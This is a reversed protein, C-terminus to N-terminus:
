EDVILDILPRGTASDTQALVDATIEVLYSDLEGSNWERFVAAAEGASLGTASRVDYAEAIFQMDAYEIGNHVMKVFHGAGDPGMWACCPEGDVRAAISELIPGLAAYSEPSGGPMISPGNLAGVEGGSIGTGVFHLGLDRLKAERRRTDTFQANGGDVVSDGQELHPVLEDIGADTPGGAKVMIIIRRPRELSALFETVSASPVFTGDSGHKDVLATTREVSRNHVAVVHGHRALNRALNSGMVALGTVGINALTTSAM